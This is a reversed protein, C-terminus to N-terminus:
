GSYAIIKSVTHWSIPIIFLNMEDINLDPRSLTLDYHHDVCIENVLVPINSFSLILKNFCANWDYRYQVSYNLQM